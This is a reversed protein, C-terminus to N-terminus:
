EKVFVGTDANVYYWALAKTTAKERVTIIYEGNATRGDNNDFKVTDDNEGWDKKVIYLAKDLPTEFTEPEPEVTENEITANEENKSIVNETKNHAVINSNQEIGKSATEKTETKVGIIIGLAIVLIIIIIYIIGKKM